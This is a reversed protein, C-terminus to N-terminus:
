GLSYFFGDPAKIKRDNSILDGTLRRRRRGQALISSGRLLSRPIRESNRNLSGKLASLERKITANAAGEAIREEISSAIKPSAIFGSSDDFCRRNVINAETVM